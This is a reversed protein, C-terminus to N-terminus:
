LRKCFLEHVSGAEEHLNQNYFIYALKFTCLVAALSVWINFVRRLSFSGEREKGLWPRDGEARAGGAM